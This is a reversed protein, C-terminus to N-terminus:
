SNKIVIIARPDLSGRLAGLTNARDDGRGERRRPHVFHSSFLPKMLALRDIVVIFHVDTGAM